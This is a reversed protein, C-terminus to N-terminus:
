YYVTERVIELITGEKINYKTITGSPLELVKQCDKIISSIKGPKFSPLVHLVHDDKALFIVDIPFNMFFSHIQKCPVLLVGGMIFQKKFMLGHLRKFFTNYILVNEIIIKGEIKVKVEM